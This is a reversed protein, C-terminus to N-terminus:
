RGKGGTGGKGSKGGAMERLLLEAVARVERPDTLQGSVYLQVTQPQDLYWRVLRSLWEQQSIGLRALVADVERKLDDDMRARVTTPETKLPM